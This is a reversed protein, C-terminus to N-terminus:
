YISIPSMLGEKVNGKFTKSCFRCKYPCGRSTVVHMVRFSRDKNLIPSTFLYSNKLYIEIPFLDWAPFDIKDLDKIPERPPNKIIEDNLKYYIGKVKKLNDINEVVERMTIEGEGLVCIDTETHSLVLEPTHTALPGGVVIKKIKALKRLQAVLWKVYGYQTSLASIGVVDYELEKAKALVEDNTYQHAWIDFVEVRHQCKLLAKAITGLGIPFFAPERAKGDCYTFRLRVYHPLQVLLVKMKVRRGM